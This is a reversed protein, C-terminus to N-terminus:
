FRVTFLLSVPRGAPVRPRRVAGRVRAAGRPHRLLGARLAQRGCSDPQGCPRLNWRCAPKLTSTNNSKTLRPHTTKFLTFFLTPLQIRTNTNTCLREESQRQKLRLHLSSVPNHSSLSQTTPHLNGHEPYFRPITLSMHLATKRWITAHTLRRVCVASSVTRM